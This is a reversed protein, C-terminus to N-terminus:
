VNLTEDPTALINKNFFRKLLRCVYIIGYTNSMSNNENNTGSITNNSSASYM